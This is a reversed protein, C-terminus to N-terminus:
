TPPAKVFPILTRIGSVGLSSVEGAEVFLRLSYKAMQLRSSLEQEVRVRSAGQDGVELRWFM